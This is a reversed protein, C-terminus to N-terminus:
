KQARSKEVQKFVFEFKWNDAHPFNGKRDDVICLKLRIKKM